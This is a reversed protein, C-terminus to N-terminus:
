APNGSEWARRVERLLVWELQPILILRHKFAPCPTFAATIHLTQLHLEPRCGQPRRLPSFRSSALPGRRAGGARSDSWVRVQLPSGSLTGLVLWMAQPLALARKFPVRGCVSM